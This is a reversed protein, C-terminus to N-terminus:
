PACILHMEYDDFYGRHEKKTTEKLIRNFVEEVFSGTSIMVIGNKM